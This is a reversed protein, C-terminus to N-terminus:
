KAKPIIIGAQSARNSNQVSYFHPFILLPKIDLYPFINESSTNSPIPCVHVYPLPYNERKEALVLRRRLELSWIDRKEKEQIRETQKEKKIDKEHHRKQKRESEM